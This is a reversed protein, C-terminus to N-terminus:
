VLGGCNHNADTLDGEFWFIMRAMAMLIEDLLVLHNPSLDFLNENWTREASENV